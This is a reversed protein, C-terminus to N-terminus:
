VSQPPQAKQAKEQEKLKYKKMQEEFSAIGAGKFMNMISTGIRGPPAGRKTVHLAPPVKEKM